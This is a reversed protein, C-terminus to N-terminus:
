AARGIPAVPRASCFRSRRGTTEPWRRSAAQGHSAVLFVEARLNAEKAHQVGPILFQQVMRVDMAHNRGASQRGVVGPPNRSPRTEKQGDVHETAYEAPLEHGTQAFQVDAPLSANWPLRAVSECRRGANALM